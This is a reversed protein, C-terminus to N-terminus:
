SMVVSDEKRPEVDDRELVEIIQKCQQETLEGAEFRKVFLAVVEVVYDPQGVVSIKIRGCALSAKKVLEQTPVGKAVFLRKLEPLRQLSFGKTGREVASLYASSCGIAGAMEKQTMDHDIRFKRLFKGFSSLKNAM